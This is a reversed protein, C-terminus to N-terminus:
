VWLARMLVPWSGRLVTCFRIYIECCAEPLTDVSGAAAFDYEANLDNDGDLTLKIYRCSYNLENITELMVARREKPVKMLGFARVAVDCGNGQLILQLQIEPANEVTIGVLVREIGGADSLRCVAGQRALADMIRKAIEEHAM